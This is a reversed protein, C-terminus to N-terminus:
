RLNLGASAGIMVMASDDSVSETRSMKSAASVTSPWRSDCTSPTELTVTLPASFGATRMSRSGTRRAAAPSEACSTVLATFAALTVSGVPPKWPGNCASVIPTFPCIVRAACYRRRTSFAPLPATSWNDSTAVTVSPTALVRRAAQSPLCGAIRSVIELDAPDFTISVRSRTRASSGCSIDHIGAPMLSVTIWSRVAVIRALTASTCYVSSIVITSTSSTTSSNMRRSTGIAAAATVTGSDSHPVRAPM